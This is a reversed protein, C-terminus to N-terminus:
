ITNKYGRCRSCCGYSIKYILFYNKNPCVFYIDVEGQFIKLPSNAFHVGAAVIYDVITCLSHKRSTPFYQFVKSNQTEYFIRERFAFFPM